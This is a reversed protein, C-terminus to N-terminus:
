ESEVAWIGGAERTERTFMCAFVTSPTRASLSISMPGSSPALSSENFGLESEVVRWRTREPATGGCNNGIRKAELTSGCHNGGDGNGGGAHSTSTSALAHEQGAEITETVLAGSALLRSGACHQEM